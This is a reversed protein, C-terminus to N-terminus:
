SSATRGTMFDRIKKLEAQFQVEERNEREKIQPMARAQRLYRMAYPMYNERVSDNTAISAVFSELFATSVRPFVRHCALVLFDTWSDPFQGFVALLNDRLAGPRAKTQFVRPDKEQEYLDHCLQWADNLETWWDIKTDLLSKFTEVDRNSLRPIDYVSEDEPTLLTRLEKTNEKVQMVMTGDEKKVSVLKLNDWATEWGQLIANRLHLDLKDDWFSEDTTDSWDRSTSLQRVQRNGLITPLIFKTVAAHFRAAFDPSALFFPPLERTINPNNRQFFILVKDARRIIAADLLAEFSAFSGKPTPMQPIDYEIRELLYAFEPPLVYEVDESKEGPATRSAEAVGDVMVVASPAGAAGSDRQLPGSGSERQLPGSGAERQLPGAAAERQGSQAPVFPKVRLDEKLIHDVFWGQVFASLDLAIRQREGDGGSDKFAKRLVDVRNALGRHLKQHNELDPYNVRKMLAEELAFHEQVYTGLVDLAKGISEFKQQSISSDVHNIVAIIKKHDNDLAPVGVSMADRWSISM